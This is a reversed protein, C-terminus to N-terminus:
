PRPAPHVVRLLSEGRALRGLNNAIARWRYAMTEVTPKHPTMIVNDLEHFPLTAPRRKEGPASPYQYWVDLGAGAIRRTKLANFLAQENVVPGRGVNVLFASPKMREFAAAGVLDVTGPAAPIAIVIFDATPLHRSLEDLAGVHKVDPGVRAHAPRRTLVTVEMGLFRGWRVLARGIEGAGLILLRHGIMEPLYPREPMWDGQRLAADLRFLGKHLALLHMFAQEAVGREHGYVNCVTCGAPVSPLHIGDVGAGTSQILRLCAGPGPQWGARYAGSVLADAKTLLRAMTPDDDGGFPLLEHPVQLQAGLEDAFQRLVAIKLPETVSM